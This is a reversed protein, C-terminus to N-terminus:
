KGNYKFIFNILAVVCAIVLTMIGMTYKHSAIHDKLKQSTTKVEIINKDLDGNLKDQKGEIRILSEKIYQVDVEMVTKAKGM